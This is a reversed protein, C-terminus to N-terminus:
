AVEIGPVVQGTFLNGGSEDRPLMLEGTEVGNIVKSVQATTNVQM